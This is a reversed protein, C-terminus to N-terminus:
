NEVVPEEEIIKSTKEKTRIDTELIDGLSPNKIINHEDMMKRILRPIDLFRIKNDLFAYVAVENAANMVAPLTGGATGAEYAYKLCPFMEFDPEKFDLTKIKALDLSTILSKFRKPYTLAYQIPIKMDPLGLQAIVSKDAFEVMSHIISQPHVIIKIKEYGIGYLWHAEIIEFGKNMLTASDITIKSGMSWTPHNLADKVSINELQQRTHNRFPGGSCTITIKSVEKANEGNLCQFIASHESDIPMLKVNNKKVEDMIVSGAAVLTEKNALAINKKVKIANYTPEIGISGVLANVVTDAENLAAIKNLGEMGSYVQCPSFNLLDDAQTKDMIDVAKPKFEKIQKLLLGSNKNATLGVVKFEEPFQRVIDLTQTGISGTSGLISLYKM